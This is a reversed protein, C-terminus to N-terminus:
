QVVGMRQAALMSSMHIGEDGLHPRLQVAASTHNGPSAASRNQSAAGRQRVSQKWTALADVVNSVAAVGGGEAGPATFSGGPARSTAGPVTPGAGPRDCSESTLSRASSLPRGAATAATCEVIGQAGSTDASVSNDPSGAMGKDEPVVVVAVEVAKTVPVRHSTVRPECSICPQPKQPVPNRQTAKWASMLDELSAGPSAGASRNTSDSAAACGRGATAAVNVSITSLPASARLVKSARTKEHELLIAACEQNGSREAYDRPTRGKDDTSDASAGSNLLTRVTEANAHEAALHLPTVRRNDLCNVDASRDLILQLSPSSVAAAYHLATRGHCDRSSLSSRPINVLLVKVAPENRLTLAWHLPTRGISDAAVAGRAGHKLIAARLKLEDKGLVAAHYLSAM